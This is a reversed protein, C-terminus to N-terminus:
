RRSLRPAPSGLTLLDNNTTNNAQATSWTVSAADTSLQDYAQNLAWLRIRNLHSAVATNLYITFTAAANTNANVGSLDFQSYSKRSTDGPL